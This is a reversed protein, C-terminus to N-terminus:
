VRTRHLKYVTMIKHFFYVIGAIQAFLLLWWSTALLGDLWPSAAIGLMGVIDATWIVYYGILVVLGYVPIVGSIVILSLILSLAVYEFPQGLPLGIFFNIAAAIGTLILLAALAGRTIKVTTCNKKGKNDTTCIELNIMVRM